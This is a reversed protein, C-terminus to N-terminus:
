QSNVTTSRQAHCVVHTSEQGTCSPNLTETIVPVFIKGSKNSGTINLLNPILGNISVTAWFRHAHCNSSNKYAFVDSPFM